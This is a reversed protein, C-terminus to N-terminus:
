AAELDWEFCSVISDDAEMKIRYVETDENFDVITAFHCIGTINYVTVVLVRQGVEFKM